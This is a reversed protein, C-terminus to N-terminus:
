DAKKKDSGSSDEDEDDSVDGLYYQEITRGMFYSRKFADIVEKQVSAPTRDLWERVQALTIKDPKTGHLEYALEAANKLGAYVLVPIAKISKVGGMFIDDLGELDCDLTDCYITIAGCGFQIPREKGGIEIFETM